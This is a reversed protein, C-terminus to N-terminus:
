IEQPVMSPTFRVPSSSRMGGPIGSNFTGQFWEEYWDKFSDPAGHSQFEVGGPIGVENLKIAVAEWCKEITLKDSVLFSRLSDYFAAFETVRYYVSDYNLAINPDRVVNFDCVFVQQRSELPKLKGCLAIQGHISIFFLVFIFTKM